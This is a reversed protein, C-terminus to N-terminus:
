DRPFEYTFEKTFLHLATGPGESYVAPTGGITVGALGPTHDFEQWPAPDPEKYFELLHGNSGPAFLHLATGPGESYVAPPCEITVGALELTLDFEQWPGPDPEKYFELLHGNAGAAFLHLATGPGESYVAPTGGITVGALGPTHDFVQWPAPDPEKYFELLDGM